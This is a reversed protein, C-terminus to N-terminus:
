RGVGAGAGVPKLLKASVFVCMAENPVPTSQVSWGSEIMGPMILANRHATLECDAPLLALADDAPKTWCVKGDEVLLIGDPFYSIARDGESDPNGTCYLIEGRHATVPM